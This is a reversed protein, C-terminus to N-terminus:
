DALKKGNGNINFGAGPACMTCVYQWFIGNYILYWRLWELIPLWSWNNGATLYTLISPIYDDDGLLHRRRLSRDSIIFWDMPFGQCKTLCYIKVKKSGKSVQKRGSNCMKLNKKKHVECYVLLYMNCFVLAMSLSQFPSISNM